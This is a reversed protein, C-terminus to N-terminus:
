RQEFTIRQIMYISAPQGRVQPPTYRWRRVVSLVEEVLIPHGGLPTVEAVRGDRGVLIRVVVDGQADADRARRTYRPRETSLLRPREMNARLYIPGEGPGSGSGTGTGHGTGHGGGTGGGSGAGPAGTGTGSGAASAHQAGADGFAEATEAAGADPAEPTTDVIPTDIVRPRPRVVPREPEPEPEPEPEEPAPPPEEDPGGGGPDDLVPEPAVPEPVFTLHLPEPEAPPPAARAVIVAAALLAAHFALSGLTAPASPWTSSRPRLLSTGGDKREVM